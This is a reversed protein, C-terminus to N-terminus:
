VPGSGRVLAMLEATLSVGKDKAYWTHLEKEFAEYDRERPDARWEEYLAQAPGPRPGWVFCESGDANFAVLKPISRSSGTLYRDMIGLNEDRLIVRLPIDAEAAAKAVLPLNQASDGCWAETIVWWEAGGNAKLLAILEPSPATTKLWRKTRALNLKTFHIRSESQVPGTTRGTAVLQENLAVFEEFSYSASAASFPTM